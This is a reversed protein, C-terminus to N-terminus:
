KTSSCLQQHQSACRVLPPQSAWTHRRCQPPNSPLFRTGRARQTATSISRWTSGMLRFARRSRRWGGRLFMWFTGRRLSSASGGSLGTAPRCHTAFSRSGRQTTCRLCLAWSTRCHITALTPRCMRLVCVSAQTSLHLSCHETPKYTTTVHKRVTAACTAKEKGNFQRKHCLPLQLVATPDLVVVLFDVRVLPSRCGQRTLSRHCLSARPQSRVTPPTSSASPWRWTPPFHTPWRTFPSCQPSAGQQWTAACKSRWACFFGSATGGTVCVSHLAKTTASFTTPQLSPQSTKVRLLMMREFLDPTRNKIMSVAMHILTHCQIGCVQLSHVLNAFAEPFDNKLRLAQTYSTIAADHRAADKYASALNAHAEPLEPQLRAVHEYCTIAEVLRGQTHAFTTSWDCAVCTSYWKIGVTATYLATM